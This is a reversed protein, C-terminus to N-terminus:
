PSTPPLHCTEKPFPQLFGTTGGERNGQLYIKLRQLSGM